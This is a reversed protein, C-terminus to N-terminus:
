PTPGNFNVFLPTPRLRQLCATELGEVRETAIFQAIIGPICGRPSVFHGQGPAVLHRARPLHALVAEAYAPPTIPDAEGTLLLTPIDASVPTRLDADM